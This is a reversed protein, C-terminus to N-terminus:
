VAGKPYVFAFYTDSINAYYYTCGQGKQIPIYVCIHQGSTSSFSSSSVDAYLSIFGYANTSTGSLRLYGDAPASVSSGSVGLTLAEQSAPMGLGSILSRGASSLNAVNLDLKGNFLEANLGATQEIATQIYNGVYFYLYMQTARPQVTNSNGYTSNSNSASFLATQYGTYSGANPASTYKNSLTFAGTGASTAIISPTGGLGISGTINPLGAEVYNEVNNRLGTFGWKTRPLKFRTNSLDLIYYWAVGRSNYLDLITSEHDSLAIKHGDKAPITHVYGDYYLITLNSASNGTLTYTYNFSDTISNGSISTITSHAVIIKVNINSLNYLVIYLSDGVSPTSSLVYRTGASGTAEYATIASGTIDNVLHAYAASYVNGDQWSFTDARLWSVENILHDSWVAQFLPPRYQAPYIASLTGSLDLSTTVGDAKVVGLKQTTAVPLYTDPIIGNSDLPAVGNAVGKDALLVVDTLDAKADLQSKNVADQSSSGDKLNIIKYDYNMDINVSVPNTISGSGAGAVLRGSNVGYFVNSDLSLYLHGALPASGSGWVLQDNDDMIATYLLDTTTNYYVDGLEFSVPATASTTIIPIYSARVQSQAITSM